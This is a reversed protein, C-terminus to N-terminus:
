RIGHDRCSGFWLCYFRKLQIKSRKATFFLAQGRQFHLLIHAAFLGRIKFFPKLSLM